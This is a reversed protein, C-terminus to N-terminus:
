LLKTDISRGQHDGAKDLCYAFISYGGMNHRFAKNDSTFCYTHSLLSYEKGFSDATFVIHATLDEMPSNCELEKCIEPITEVLNQPSNIGHGYRVTLLLDSLTDRLKCCHRWGTADQEFSVDLETCRNVSYTIRRNHFAVPQGGLGDWMSPNVRRFHEEAIELAKQYM